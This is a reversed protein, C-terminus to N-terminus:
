RRDEASTEEAHLREIRYEIRPTLEPDCSEVAYRVCFRHATMFEVLALRVLGWEGAAGGAVGCCCSWWWMPMGAPADVVLHGVGVRGLECAATLVEDADSGLVRWDERM